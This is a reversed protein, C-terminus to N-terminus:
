VASRPFMRWSRKMLSEAVNSRIVYGEDPMQTNVIAIADDFSLRRTLTMNDAVEDCESYDYMNAM